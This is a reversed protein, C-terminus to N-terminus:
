PKEEPHAVSRLGTEDERLITTVRALERRLTRIRLPNVVEQVRKRLKMNFLEELLDHHKQELEERTLDRLIETKM